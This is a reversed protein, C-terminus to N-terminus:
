GQGGTTKMGTEFRSLHEKLLEVCEAAAEVPWDLTLVADGHRLEVRIRQGDRNLFRRLWGNKRLAVVSEANSPWPAAAAAAEGRQPTSAASPAAAPAPLAGGALVKVLNQGFEDWMRDAKTKMVSLGFTGLRGLVDVRVKMRIETGGDPLATLFLESQQRLSSAVSADEGTGECRLYYPERTEVIVTRLKFKASIFSIKVQIVALYETDSLVEISQMGPVCGGMVNPDLLKKWVEAPPADVALIKEIEVYLSRPM